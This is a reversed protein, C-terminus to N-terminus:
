AGRSVPAPGSKSMALATELRKKHPLGLIGSLLFRLFINNRGMHRKKRRGRRWVRSQLVSVRNKKLKKNVQASVVRM